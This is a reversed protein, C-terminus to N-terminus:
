CFRARSTRRLQLSLRSMLWSAMVQRTFDDTLREPYLAQSWAEQEQRVEAMLAQCRSCNQVHINLGAGAYTEELIFEEMQARNLCKM